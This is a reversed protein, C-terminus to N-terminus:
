AKRTSSKRASAKRTGSAKKAKARARRKARKLKKEQEEKETKVRAVKARLLSAFGIQHGQCDMSFPPFQSGTAKYNEQSLEIFKKVQCLIKEGLYDRSHNTFIDISLYLTILFELSAINIKRGDALPIRNLSHCATEEIFMCIPKDGMRLEIRLPVLEGREPHKYLVIRDDALLTKVAAADDKPEPSTFLLPGGQRIEYQASGHRIGKSYIAALPGNCLIRQQRICYDLITKRMETPILSEYWQGGGSCGAKIPFEQNILQLREFVKKWRDVMGRPRSLELYMMMRLIDPDTYHVGDQKISRRYMIAFLEPTIETIDAVAVFNVLIKKTGAHIGVKHYVDEYGEAKLVKVLEEVDAEIDPTYFDYDPLDTNPDYFRKKEPLIMNMATGGYCIRKKQKIFTNVVSLAHLLSEDHASEYNLLNSAQEIARELRHEIRESSKKYQPSVQRAQIDEEM